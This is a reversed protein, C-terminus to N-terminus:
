FGNNGNGYGEEQKMSLKICMYVEKGKLGLLDIVDCCIFLRVGLFVFKMMVFFQGVRLKYGVNFQM